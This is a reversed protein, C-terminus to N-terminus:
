VGARREARVIHLAAGAVHHRGVLVAIRDLDNRCEVITHLAHKRRDRVVIVRRCAAKRERRSRKRVANLCRRRRM